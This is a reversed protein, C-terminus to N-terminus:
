PRYTVFLHEYFPGFYAPQGRSGPARRLRGRRLLPKFTQTIQAVAIHAGICWHQGWGFRMTDAASRSPDFTDPRPVRRPDFAASQTLAWVRKGGRIRAPRSTGAAIVTDTHCDRFLGPNIPHFRLAELLVRALLADDDSQAAQEAAALVDPKRLLWEMIQGSARNNTPLFGLMIGVLTARIERDNLGSRPQVFRGVITENDPKAARARAITRDVLPGVFAKATLAAQKLAPSSPLLHPISYNNMALLWLAFDPHDTPIGFYERIIDVPVRTLLGAMCDIEGDAAKVLEEARKASYGTIKEPIDDLRFIKMTQRHIRQYDDDREMGLLFNVGDADLEKFKEAYPVPFDRDRDLVEMVDDYRSVLVLKGLRAVPFVHRLFKAIWNPNDFLMTLLKEPLSRKRIRAALQTFDLLQPVDAQNAGDYM